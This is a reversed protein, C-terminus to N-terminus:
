PLAARRCRLFLQVEPPAQTSSPAYSLDSAHLVEFGASAVVDTLEDRPYGTVRVPMGLFDIPVDDVDAEVMGLVLLGGPVLVDRLRALAGPIEARPMMLLSFFAVV